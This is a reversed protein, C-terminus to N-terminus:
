ARKASGSRSRIRAAACASAASCPTRMLCMAWACTRLSSPPRRFPLFSAIMGPPHMDDGGHFGAMGIFGPVVLGRMPGKQTGSRALAQM